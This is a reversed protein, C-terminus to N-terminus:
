RTLNRVQSMILPIHIVYDGRQWKYVEGVEYYLSLSSSLYGGSSEKSLNEM